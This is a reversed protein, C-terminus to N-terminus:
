VGGSQVMFSYMCCCRRMPNSAVERLAEVFLGDCGFFQDGLNARGDKAGMKPQRGIVDEIVGGINSVPHGNESGVLAGEEVGRRLRLQCDIPQEVFARRESRAIDRSLRMTSAIPPTSSSPPRRARRRPGPCPGASRETESSSV